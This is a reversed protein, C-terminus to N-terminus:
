SIVDNVETQILLNFTKDVDFDQTYVNFAIDNEVFTDDARVWDGIMNVDNTESGLIKLMNSSPDTISLVNDISVNHLSSNESMNITEINRVDSLSSLDIENSSNFALTDNGEGGDISDLSTYSIIDDGANADIDDIGSTGIITEDLSSGYYSSTLNGEVDQSSVNIALNELTSFDSLDFDEISYSGDENITTSIEINEQAENTLLIQVDQNEEINLSTGEINIRDSENIYINTGNLEFTLPEVFFGSDSAGGDNSAHGSFAIYQFPIESSIQLMGSDDSTFNGLSNPILDGNKDFLLYSGAYTSSDSLSNINFSSNTTEYKLNMILSENDDIGKESENENNQIGYGYTTNLVEENQAELKLSGNTKGNGTMFNNGNFAYLDIGNVISINDISIEPSDVDDPTDDNSNDDDDNNDNDDDSNDNSDDDGSTDDDNDTEDEDDENNDQSDDDESTDDDDDTEDEEDEINDQSDDDESTDDDDDTEDEDSTDDDNDTEDEEDENNDQSDDDDESTDDDDETEDEDSTNDDDDIEDSTDDDVIPTDNDEDIVDEILPIDDDSYDTETDNDTNVIDEIEDPEDTGLAITGGDIIDIPENQALINSRLDTTVNVEDGTRDLFRGVLAGSSQTPEEGAAAAELNEIEEATLNENQINPNNEGLMAEELLNNDESNDNLEKSTNVIELNESNVQQEGNQIVKVGNEIKKIDAM